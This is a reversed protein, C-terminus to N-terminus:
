LKQTAGWFLQHLQEHGTANPHICDSVFWTTALGTEVGHGKFLERLALLTVGTHAKAEDSMIAEWPDLLTDTTKGAPFFGLAGGCKKGDYSFNGTGDSPDYINSLLVRVQVGDGFRGPKTLEDLATKLYGQFATRDASGDGGTLIGPIAAQVDNGGITISVLVPGALATPLGGVQADLNVTKAGGKSAKVIKVDAGYKGQLDTTLSNYFFPAQGGGDSISDGLIVYTKFALGTALPTDSGPTSTDTGPSSTDSGGGATDTGPTVGGDNATDGSTSGGCAVALSALLLWPALTHLTRTM